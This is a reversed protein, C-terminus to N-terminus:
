VLSMTGQTCSWRPKLPHCVELWLGGGRPPAHPTEAGEAELVWRVEHKIQFKMNLGKEQRCCGM